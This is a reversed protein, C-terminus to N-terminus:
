GTLSAARQDNKLDAVLSEIDAPSMASLEQIRKVVRDLASSSKRSLDDVNKKDNFLRKGTEDCIGYFAVLSRIKNIKVSKPQGNPGLQIIEGEIEDRESGTLTKVCIVGGWEPVPLEEVHIDNVNLIEEASLYKM